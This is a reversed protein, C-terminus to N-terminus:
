EAMQLFVSADYIRRNCFVRLVKRDDFYTFLRTLEGLTVEMHVCSQQLRSARATEARLDNDDPVRKCVGLPVTLRLLATLGAFLRDSNAAINKM